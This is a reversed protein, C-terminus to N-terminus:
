KAPASWDGSQFGCGIELGSADGEYYTTANKDTKCTGVSGAAPCSGETWVANSNEDTKGTAACEDATSPAVCAKYPGAFSNKMTFSCHGGAAAKGKSDDATASTGFVTIALAAVAAIAGVLKISVTKM